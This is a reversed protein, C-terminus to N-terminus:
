VNGDKPLQFDIKTSPNFPNPYNQSLSFSVPTGVNVENNLNYYAFNGNFDIQKLRYNYIGSAVNRDTFSYSMPITTTGNGTVNGLNVWDSSVSKREVNFGSNNLESATTWNITVDNNNVSSSMSAMEVPLPNDVWVKRVTNSTQTIGTADTFRAVIFDTGTANCTYTITAIGAGNTIATGIVGACPGSLVTFTVTDGVVPLPPTGSTVTAILQHPDGITNTDVDPSLTIDSIVAAGRALIYPIGQTGDPATYNSAIDVAIALVQYNLSDWTSFAEHLSCSWNSITADTLGTLAPHTATIHVNNYCGLVCDGIVNMSGPISIGNLVLVPTPVCSGTYYCSLCIYAGTKTKGPDDALVFAITKAILQGGGQFNHFQPDSGIIIVNGDIEPGWIGTTSEAAAIPGTGGVCTPDGLILARYTAFDAASKALWQAATVVEVNFGAAIAANAETSSAGGTVTPALILVTSDNAAPQSNSNQVNFLFVTLVILLVTFIHKM